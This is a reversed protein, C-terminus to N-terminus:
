PTETTLRHNSGTLREWIRAGDFYPDNM